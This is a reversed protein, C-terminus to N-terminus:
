QSLPKVRPDEYDESETAPKFDKIVDRLYSLQNHLGPDYIELCGGEFIIAEVDVYENIYVDGYTNVNLPFEWWISRNWSSENSIYSWIAFEKVVRPKRNIVDVDVIIKWYIKPDM